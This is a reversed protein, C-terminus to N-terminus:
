YVKAKSMLYMIAELRSSVSLIAFVGADRPNGEGLCVMSRTGLIDAEERIAMYEKWVERGDPKNEGPFAAGDSM